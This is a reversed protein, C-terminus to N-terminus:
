LPSLFQLTLMVEFYNFGEMVKFQNIIIIIIIIVLLMKLYTIIIFLIRFYKKNHIIM